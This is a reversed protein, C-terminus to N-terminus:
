RPEIRMDAELTAHDVLFAPAPRRLRLAAILSEVVAAAAVSVTLLILLWVLDTHWVAAWGRLMGSAGMMDHMDTEKRHESLGVPVVGIPRPWRHDSEDPFWALVM